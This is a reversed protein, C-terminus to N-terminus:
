GSSRPASDCPSAAPGTSTRAAPNTTRSAARRDLLQRGGDALREAGALPERDLLVADVPEGVRRAVVLPDVDVL